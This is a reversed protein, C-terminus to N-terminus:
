AEKLDLAEFIATLEEDTIWGDAHSKMATKKVQTKAADGIPQPFQNQPLYTHM